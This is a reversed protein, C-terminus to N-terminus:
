EIALWKWGNDVELGTYPELGLIIKLHTHNREKAIRIWEEVEEIKYRSIHTM